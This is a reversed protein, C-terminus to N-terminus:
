DIRAIRANGSDAIYITTGDPSVAIGNPNSLPATAAIAGEPALGTAGTGAVTTVARTAVDIRRLRQNAYDSVLVGGGPAAAVFAPYRFQAASGVGDAFGPTGNGALTDITGDPLMIRVVHNQYESWVVSGDPLVAVSLPASIAANTASYDWTGPGASGLDGCYDTFGNGAITEITGGITFRRIRHGAYEAIYVQGAVSQAMGFPAYLTASTAPGGDGGSGASGTGAVTSINGGLWFRRVRNNMSWEAVLVSGDNAAVVGIPQLTASTAPGGDGSAGCSGHVGAVTSITGSAIRRVVCNDLDAIVYSGDTLAAIDTPYALQASTAPGGDGGFGRQCSGGLNTWTSGDPSLRGVYHSYQIASIISGDPARKLGTPYSLYDYLPNTSAPCRLFCLGAGAVTHVFGDPGITRILCEDVFFISGDPAGAVGALAVVTASAAVSGDASFASVGTGVVSSITGDVAVKRLRLHYRDAAVISGDSLVTVGEPHSLSAATAPLGDCVGGGAVTEIIREGDLCDTACADGGVTNGDDCYEHGAWVFGDGCRARKCTPLCAGTYSNAHGDDCEEFPEDVVGDGCRAYVVAADEAGDGTGSDAGDELAADASAADAGAEIGADPVGGEAVVPYASLDLVCGTILAVLATVATLVCRAGHTPMM